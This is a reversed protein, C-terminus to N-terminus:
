TKWLKRKKYKKISNYTQKFPKVTSKSLYYFKIEKTTRFYHLTMLRILIYYRLGHKVSLRRKNEM